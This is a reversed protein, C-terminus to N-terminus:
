KKSELIINLIVLVHLGGSPRHWSTRRQAIWESWFHIGFRRTTETVTRHQRNKSKNELFYNQWQNKLNRSFVQASCRWRSPPIMTCMRSRVVRSTSLNFKSDAISQKWRMSLHLVRLWSAYSVMSTSKKCFNRWHQNIHDVSDGERRALGYRVLPSKGVGCKGRNIIDVHSKRWFKTCRSKQQHTHTKTFLWINNFKKISWGASVVVKDKLLMFATTMAKKVIQFLLIM